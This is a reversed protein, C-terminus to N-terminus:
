KDLVQIIAFPRMLIFMIALELHYLFLVKFEFYVHKLIYIFYSM